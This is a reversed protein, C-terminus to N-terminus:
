TLGLEDDQAVVAWGDSLSFEFIIGSNGLSFDNEIGSVVNGETSGTTFIM